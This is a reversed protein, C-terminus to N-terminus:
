EPYYRSIWRRERVSYDRIVNFSGEKRIILIIDDKQNILKAPPSNGFKSMKAGPFPVGGGPWYLKKRGYYVEALTM